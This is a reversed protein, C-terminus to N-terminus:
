WGGAKWCVKSTIYEGIRTSVQQAGGQLIPTECSDIDDKASVKPWTVPDFLFICAHNYIIYM